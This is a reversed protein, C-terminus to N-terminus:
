GRFYPKEDWDGLFSCVMSLAVIAATDARLIRPGFSLATTYPKNKILQLEEKDFGGEPGIIVAYKQGKEINCLIKPASEGAGTEDGLFLKRDKDWSTLLQKLNTIPMIEPVSIRNCQEAAEIAIAASREHNIKNVVTFRTIVPVIKQAGLETAKQIINSLPANKVPAFCLWIDPEALPNRLQQQIRLVLSNKQQEIIEAIYEGDTQNFVAIRDNLRLRMVNNLYHSQAKNLSVIGANHLKDTTFLRIKPYKAQLSM